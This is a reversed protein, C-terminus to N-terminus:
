LSVSVGRDDMSTAAANASCFNSLCINAIEGINSTKGAVDGSKPFNDYSTASSWCNFM